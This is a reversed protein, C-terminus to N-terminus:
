LTMRRHRTRHHEAQIIAEITDVCEGLKDQANVVVYDFEGLRAMEERATEVRLRLSAETETRREQLRKFWDAQNSPIIFILVAEPCLARWKAAGQVDVRLLLDGGKQRAEEIHQRPMGKYDEYVNAYEIMEGAGIMREFVARSVFLYDVGDVEEPRPPRSNATIVFSIPLNRRQIERVVADKGVGSPGSIVILLPEPHLVDFSLAEDM